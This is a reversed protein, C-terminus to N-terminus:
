RHSSPLLTLVLYTITFLIWALMLCLVLGLLVRQVARWAPNSIDFRVLVLYPILLLLISYAALPLQFGSIFDYAVFDVIFVLPLWRVFLTVNVKEATM